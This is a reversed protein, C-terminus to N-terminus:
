PFAKFIQGDYSAYVISYDDEVTKGIVINGNNDLSIVGFRYHLRRAEQLTRDVANQLLMGDQVRTVIKVAAGHNVIQEGCGTCSVGAVASAYTGAVTASDSVRGPIAGGIGGTSTGACIIGEEDIAVAGVTGSKHIQVIGEPACYPNNRLAMGHQRAYATALEGALVTYPEKSLLNAVDIPNKVEEINIVGAFCNSLSDMIAASMRVKGDAQLSAGTGANFLAEDELWHIGHLVAARAGVSCLVDYAQKIVSALAEHIRQELHHEHLDWRHTFIGGHIVLKPLIPIRPM